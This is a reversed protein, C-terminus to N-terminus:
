PDVFCKNCEIYNFKYKKIGLHLKIHDKLHFSQSLTKDCRFKYTCYEFHTHTQRDLLGKERGGSM